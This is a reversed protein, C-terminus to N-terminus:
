CIEAAIETPQMLARSRSRLFAACGWLSAGLLGDSALSSWAAGRWSYAPIVWLNVVVNFLAVLVQVLTRLGQHGAGTLSDAAFYHMTKLLPLLAM